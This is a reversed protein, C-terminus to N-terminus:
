RPIGGHYQNVLGGTLAVCEECLALAAEAMEGTDPSTLLTRLLEQIAPPCHLHGLVRTLNKGCDVAYGDWFTVLLECALHVVGVAHYRLHLLMQKERFGMTKDHQIALCLRLWALQEPSAQWSALTTAAATALDDCLHEPDYLVRGHAFTYHHKPQRHPGALIAQWEPLPYITLEVRRGTVREMFFHEREKFRHGQFAAASIAYLDVDSQSHPLHDAYGGAWVISRYRLSNIMEEIIRGIANDLM